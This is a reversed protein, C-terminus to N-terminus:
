WTLECSFSLAQRDCKAGALALTNIAIGAAALVVVLAVVVAVALILKPM